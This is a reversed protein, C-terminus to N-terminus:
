AVVVGPRVAWSTPELYRPLLNAPRYPALIPPTGASAAAMPVQPAALRAVCTGALEFGAPFSRPGCPRLSNLWPRHELGKADAGPWHDTAFRLGIRALRDAMWRLAGNSLGCEHPPYGGGVDAHAGPFLVQVVNSRPEWLTPTFDIRQEDIALAQLGHAVRESLDRNAFAYLDVRRGSDEGVPIGLAGVTDWVGVAEIPVDAVYRPLPVPRLLDGLRDKADHWFSDLDNGLDGTDTSRRYDVWAQMAIAYAREDSHQPDLGLGQWDLLGQAAILGALARATYAGRSFGVIYICDGPAYNRSIYTYGRVVRHVLGIGFDGELVRAMEDHTDGIGHIYKAVQAPGGGDAPSELRREMEPGVPTTLSGALGQFLLQVNSPTDVGAPDEETPGNWTGDACLVINKMVGGPCGRATSTQAGPLRAM